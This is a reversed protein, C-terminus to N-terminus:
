WRSQKENVKAELMGISARFRAADGGFLGAKLPPWDAGLAQQEAKLREIVNANPDHRATRGFRGVYISESHGPRRSSIDYAVLSLICEFQDFLRAYKDDDPEFDVFHPRIRAAVYDSAPAASRTASTLAADELAFDARLMEAASLEGTQVRVPVAALRGLLGYHARVTAAMGAGYLLLCAPWHRLDPASIFGVHHVAVTAIRELCATWIYYHEPKAWFCGTITLRLLHGLRREFEELRSQEAAVSKEITAALFDADTLAAYAREVEDYVFHHLAIHHKEESMYRKLTAVAVHESLPHRTFTDEISQVHELLKTFFADADVITLLIARRAAMVGKALESHDGRTTWYTSFRHSKCRKFAARLAVDWDASWGCVILGYEDFIRDLLRNLGPPYRELEQGVNKIRTDLYDGHVKVVTCPAHSLPLAGDAADASHVVRPTVGEAELAHEMLRDFNTTIIVRVFGKAVLSAIARHAATPQKKGEEREQSTPEFYSRLLNSRETPSHALEGLLGGYTPETQFKVKFWASPDPEPDEGHLTAVRTALDCIVDWGSPIGASRSVGSGLLIAYCGKNGHLTVALSLLPDIQLAM